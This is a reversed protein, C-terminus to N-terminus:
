SQRIIGQNLSMFNLRPLKTLSEEVKINRSNLWTEVELRLSNKEHYFAYLIIKM